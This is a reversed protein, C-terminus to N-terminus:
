ALKVEVTCEESYFGNSEGIFRLDVYGKITSFKYYTWTQNQEKRVDCSVEECMTLPNGILKSIDGVIDELWFDECCDQDHYLKLESGCLFDISFEGRKTDITIGIPTKGILREMEVDEILYYM